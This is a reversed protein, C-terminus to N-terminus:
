NECASTNDQGCSPNACLRWVGVGDPVRAYSVNAQAGTWRFLDVERVDTDYLVVEEQSAKLKFSLHTKGQAPTGDAWFLLPSRAQITVGEPIVSQRPLSTDDTLSYGSLDVRADSTNYLEVWDDHEGAEDRCNDNNSPMVENLRIPSASAPICGMGLSTLLVLCPVQTAGHKM